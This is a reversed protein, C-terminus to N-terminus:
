DLIMGMERALSRDSDNVRNEFTSEDSHKEIVTRVASVWVTFDLQKSFNAPESLSREALANTEAILDKIVRYYGQDAILGAVFAEIESKRASNGANLQLPADARDM